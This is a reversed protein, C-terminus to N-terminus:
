VSEHYAMVRAQKAKHRKYERDAHREQSRAAKLKENYAVDEPSLKPIKSGMPPWTGTETKWDHKVSGGSLLPEGKLRREINAWEWADVKANWERLRAHQGPTLEELEGDKVEPAAPGPTEEDTFTHGCSPCEKTARPVIALCGPCDKAPALSIGDKPKKKRGELTWERPEQPLGGLDPHSCCGAHDLIVFPKDGYPRAGRGAMQLYLSESLTPRALIITKVAPVDTGETFVGCNAVVKVRGAQLDAIAKDRESNETNGDVHVAPIGAANFADAIHQSHPVNAAFAFTPADNGHKKWHEVIDGILERKDVARAVDEANYDSGSRRVGSLDAKARTGFCRPEVLFGEAVLEAFSAVVVIEDYADSLPKGDARIPTATLGLHWHGPLPYEAQIDRYSKALARHAEDVITLVRPDGTFPKVRNRFTDVSGLQMSATPRRKAWVRWLDEDTLSAPDAALLEREVRWDVGAMIVGVGSADLGNRVLKAYTQKIIERRHALFSSKFGRGLARRTIESAIVTKGGGTALVLLVRRCGSDFLQFVREIGREQYPRLALSM